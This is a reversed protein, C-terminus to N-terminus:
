TKVNNINNLRSIVENNLDNAMKWLNHEEAIMLQKECQDLLDSADALCKSKLAIKTNASKNWGAKKGMQEWQSKSIKIKM